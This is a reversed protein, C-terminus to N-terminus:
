LSTYVFFTCTFFTVIFSSAHECSLPKQPVRLTITTKTLLLLVSLSTEPFPSPSVDCGVPPWRSWLCPACPASRHLAKGRGDRERRAFCKCLFLFSLFSYYLVGPSKKGKYLASDMLCIYNKSIYSSHSNRGFTNIQVFHFRNYKQKSFPWIAYLM